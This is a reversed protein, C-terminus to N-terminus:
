RGFLFSGGEDLGRLSCLLFLVLRYAGRFVVHAGKSSAYHGRFFSAYITYGEVGISIGAGLRIALSYCRGEMSAVGYLFGFSVFVVLGGCYWFFVYFYRIFCRRCTM